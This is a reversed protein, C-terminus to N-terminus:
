LRLVQLSSLSLAFPVHPVPPALFWGSRPPRRGGARRPKAALSLAMLGLLIALCLCADGPSLPARDDPAVFRHAQGSAQPPDQVGAMANAADVSVSTEHATCVQPPPGHRLGYSFILGAVVFLAM